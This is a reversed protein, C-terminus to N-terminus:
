AVYETGRHDQCLMLTDALGCRELPLLTRRLRCRGKGHTYTRLWRSLHGAHSSAPVAVDCRLCSGRRARLRVLRCQMSATTTRHAASSQLRRAPCRTGRTTTQTTTNPARWRPAQIVPGKTQGSPRPCAQPHLHSKPSKCRPRRKPRPSPRRRGDVTCDTRPSLVQAEHNRGTFEPPASLRESKATPEDDHGGSDGAGGASEDPVQGAVPRPLV